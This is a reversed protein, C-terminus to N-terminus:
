EARALAFLVYYGGHELMVGHKVGEFFKLFLAELDGIEVHVFVADYRRLFYLRCDTGIRSEDGYHIGVVLDACNLGYPLDAFNAARRLDYEMGVRHLRHSM